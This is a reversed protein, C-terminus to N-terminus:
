RVWRAWTCGPSRFIINVEIGEGDRLRDARSFIAVPKDMSVNEEWKGKKLPLQRLYKIPGWLFSSINNHRNTM